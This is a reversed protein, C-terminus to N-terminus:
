WLMKERWPSVWPLPSAVYIMAGKKDFFPTRRVGKTVVREYQEWGIKAGKYQKCGIKLGKWKLCNYQNNANKFFIYSM